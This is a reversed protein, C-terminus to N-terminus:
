ITIGWMIYKHRFHCFVKLLHISVSLNIYLYFSLYIPLIQNPVCSPYTSIFRQYIHLYNFLYSALCIFQYFSLYIYMYTNYLVFLCVNSYIFLYIYLHYSKHKYTTVCLIVKLWDISLFISLYISM